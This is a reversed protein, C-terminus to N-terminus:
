LLYCIPYAHLWFFFKHRGVIISRYFMKKVTYSPFFNLLLFCSARCSFVQLKKTHLIYYSLYPPPVLSVAPFLFLQLLGCPLVRNNQPLFRHLLCRATQFRPLIQKTQPLYVELIAPTVDLVSLKKNFLHM